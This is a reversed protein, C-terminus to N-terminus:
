GFFEPKLLAVFLYVLLILAILGVILYLSM